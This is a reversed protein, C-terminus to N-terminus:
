RAHRRYGSGRSWHGQVNWGPSPSDLIESELLKIKSVDDLVFVYFSVGTEAQLGASRSPAVRSWRRGRRGRRGRGGRRRLSRCRKRCFRAHVRALDRVIRLGLLNGGPEIGPNGDPVGGDWPVVTCVLEACVNGGETPDSAGAVVQRIPSGSPDALLVLALSAIGRRPRSPRRHM